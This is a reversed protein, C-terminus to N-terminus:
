LFEWWRPLTPGVMVDSEEQHWYFSIQVRSGERENAPAVTVLDEARCVYPRWLEAPTPIVRFLSLSCLRTGTGGLPPDTTGWASPLSTGATPWSCM